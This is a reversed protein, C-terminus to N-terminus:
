YPADLNAILAQITAHSIVNKVYAAMNARDATSIDKPMLVDVNFRMSSPYTYVDLNTDHVEIPVEFTLKTRIVTNAAKPSTQSIGLTYFGRPSNATTREEYVVLGGDKRAPSFTHAVPTSQADDVVIDTAAAM